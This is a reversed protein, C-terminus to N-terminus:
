DTAALHARLKQYLSHTEPRVGRWLSFAEAAQELLMGLGDRAQLAGSAQAWRCFATPTAAYMMDYCCTHQPKIWRPELALPTGSLSASTANIILDFPGIATPAAVELPGLDSFSEALQQAKDVSRNLLVVAVPKAQLLPALVGRAAGGAGLLLLRRGIIEIGAQALDRLLGVGDTNDGYLVGEATSTITNVAGARAAAPSLQDVLAAASEKFPLTVNAGRAGGAFFAQVSSQWADPAILLAQYSLTQATQAAFQQHIWPSKSHAIPNGLVAYRDM